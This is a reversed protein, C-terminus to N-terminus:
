VATAATCRMGRIFPVPCIMFNTQSICSLIQELASTMCGKIASALLGHSMGIITLALNECGVKSLLQPWNFNRMCLQAQELGSSSSVEIASALLGHLLRLVTPAPDTRGSNSQLAFSNAALIACVEQNGTSLRGVKPLHTFATKHQMLSSCTM